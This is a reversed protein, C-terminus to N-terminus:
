DSHCTVDIDTLPDPPGKVKLEYSKTDNDLGNSAVCTYNGSDKNSLNSIIFNNNLEKKINPNDLDILVDDKYWNIELNKFEFSDTTAHCTFLAIKGAIVVMDEPAEVIMTKTQVALEETSSNTGFHNRAWCTYEGSDTPQM